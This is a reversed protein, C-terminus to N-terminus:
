SLNNEIIDQLYQTTNNQALTIAIATASEIAKANSRGHAVIGLQKLGLILAGGYESYDTSQKLQKFASKALLAGLTSLMSTRIARKLLTVITTTVGESIKLAINGVFGDCVIVDAVGTYVDKGEVNGIFSIGHAHKLLNYAEQTVLNGKGEEEGINLLAVRPQEYGLYHQALVNGMLAFQLLNYPNCDVTAGLDLFIFPKDESPMISALAPRDVGKMRGVIFMGCAVSAGSHGASMFADAQAEKVLKCAVHISSDKKSRLIESPKENMHVVQTAPIIDYDAKYKAKSQLIALEREIITTDGVLLVKANHKQAAVLAGEIIVASGNDGGMADIAITVHKKKM